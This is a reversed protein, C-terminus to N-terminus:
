LLLDTVPCNLTSALASVTGAAAKRIDKRRIEYEEITRLSVGSKEALEKQTMELRKRYASLRTQRNRLRILRDLEELTKEESVTHLAPYLRILDEEKLAKEIMHFPLGSRWQYLALFQGWWCATGPSYSVPWDADAPVLLGCSELIRQFLETGSLGCLVAPDGKEFRSAFGSIIFYQLASKPTMSCIEDAYELMEGMNNVAEEVYMEPYANGAM